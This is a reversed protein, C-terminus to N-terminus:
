QKLKDIASRVAGFGCAALLLWAVEPINIGLTQLVAGVGILAAVIYTKKGSLFGGIKSLVDKM